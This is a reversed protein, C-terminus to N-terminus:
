QRDKSAPAETSGSFKIRLKKQIPTRGVITETGDQHKVFVVFEGNETRVSAEDDPGVTNAPVTFTALTDCGLHAFASDDENKYEALVVPKM